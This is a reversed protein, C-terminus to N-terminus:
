CYGTEEYTFVILVGGVDEMNADAVDHDLAANESCVDDAAACVSSGGAAILILSM